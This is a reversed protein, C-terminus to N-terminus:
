KKSGPQQEERFQEVSNRIADDFFRHFTVQYFRRAMGGCDSHLEEFEILPTIFASRVHAFERILESLDYGEKWRHKGHLAATQAAEAKLDKSFANRLSNGLNECLQPLHDRIQHLTLNESTSLKADREVAAIWDATIAERRSSLFSALQSGISEQSNISQKKRM